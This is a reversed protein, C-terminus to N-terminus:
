GNAGVQSWFFFDINIYGLWISEEGIISLMGELLNSGLGLLGDGVSGLLGGGIKQLTLKLAHNSVVLQFYLVHPLLVM